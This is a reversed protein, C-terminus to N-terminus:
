LYRTFRVTAAIADSSAVAAVPDEGPEVATFNLAWRSAGTDILFLVDRDAPSSLYAVRANKPAFVLRVAPVGGVTVFGQELLEVHRERRQRIECRTLADLSLHNGRLILLWQPTSSSSPDLSAALVFQDVYGIAPQVSSGPAIWACASLGLIGPAGTQREYTAYSAADLFARQDSPVDIQVGKAALTISPVRQGQSPRDEKTIQLVVAVVVIGLLASLAGFGFRRRRARRRRYALVDSLPDAPLRFRSALRELLREEDSM